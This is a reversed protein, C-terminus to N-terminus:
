PRRRQDPRSRSPRVTGSVTPLSVVCEKEEGKIGLPFVVADEGKFGLLSCLLSYLSTKTVADIRRM